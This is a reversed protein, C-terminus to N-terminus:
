ALNERLFEWFHHLYRWFSLIVLIDRRSGFNGYCLFRLKPWSVKQIQGSMKWKKSDAPSPSGLPIPDRQKWFLPWFEFIRPWFRSKWTVSNKARMFRRNHDLNEKRHIETMQLYKKEMRERNSLGHHGRLWHGYWKWVLCIQLSLKEPLWFNAFFDGFYRALKFWFTM